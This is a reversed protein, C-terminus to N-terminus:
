GAASAMAACSPISCSGACGAKVAARTPSRWAAPTAGTASSSGSARAPAPFSRAGAAAVSAGVNAEFTSDVGYEPCYVKGHHAVIAGLDGPRLDRRITPASDM